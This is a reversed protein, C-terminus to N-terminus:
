EHRKRRPKTRRGQAFECPEEPKEGMSTQAGRCRVNKKRSGPQPLYIQPMARRHVSVLAIRRLALSPKLASSM